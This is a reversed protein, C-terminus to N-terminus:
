IGKTEEKNNLKEVWDLSLNIKTTDFKIIFEDNSIFAFVLCRAGNESELLLHTIPQKFHKMAAREYKNNKCNCVQRDLWKFGMEKLLEDIDDLTFKTKM